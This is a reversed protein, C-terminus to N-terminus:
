RLYYYQDYQEFLVKRILTGTTRKPDYSYYTTRKIENNELRIEFDTLDYKLSKKTLSLSLNNILFPNNNLDRSEQIFLIHFISRM